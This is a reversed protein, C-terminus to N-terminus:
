RSIRDHEAALKRLLAENQPLVREEELVEKLEDRGTIEYTSLPSCTDTELLPCGGMSMFSLVRDVPKSRLRGGMPVVQFRTRTAADELQLREFLQLIRQDSLREKNSFIVIGAIISHISLGSVNPLSTQNM